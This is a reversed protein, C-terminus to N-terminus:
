VELRLVDRPAGTEDIWWLTNRRQAPVRKDSCRFTWVQALEHFGCVKVLLLNFGALVKNDRYRTGESSVKVQDFYGGLIERWGKLDNLFRHTPDLHAARSGLAPVRVLLRASTKMVRHIEDLAPFPSRLHELVSSAIIEDVSDPAFPLFRIDCVVDVGKFPLRDVNIRDPDVTSGCGLNLRIRERQGNSM